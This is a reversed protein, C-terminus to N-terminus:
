KTLITQQFIFLSMILVIDLIEEPDANEEGYHLGAEKRALAQWTEWCSRLCALKRGIPYYEMEGTRNNDGLLLNQEKGDILYQMEEAM